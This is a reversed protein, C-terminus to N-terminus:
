GEAGHVAGLAALSGPRPGPRGRATGRAGAAPWRAAGHKIALRQEAADHSVRPKALVRSAAAQRQGDQGGSCSSPAAVSNWKGRWVLVV